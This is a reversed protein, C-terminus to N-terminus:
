AAREEVKWDDPDIGLRAATEYRALALRDSRVEQVLVRGDQLVARLTWTRGSNGADAPLGEPAIAELLRPVIWYRAARGGLAPGSVRGAPPRPYTGSTAPEPEEPTPAPAPRAPSRSVKPGTPAAPPPAAPARVPATSREGEGFRVHGQGTDWKIDRESLGAALLDERTRGLEYAQYRIYAGTGARKPNPDVHTVVEPM